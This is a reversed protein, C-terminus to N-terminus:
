ELRLATGKTEKLTFATGLGIAAVLFLYWSPAFNNGSIEILWICILPATGGAIAAGLNFGLAMGSYRVRAPFLEALTALSLAMACSQPLGLVALAVMGVAVNGSNILAFAPYILIVMALSTGIWMPKRGVKDSLAAFFPIACVSVALTITTSWFTETSSLGASTRLYTAMYIYIVYYAGQLLVSLGFAQLLARWQNAVVEVIPARAVKGDSKMEKFQPTEELRLRIWLGILGLPLAFLFPLRWGWANMFDNGLTATLIAVISSALLAGGLGGIQGSSTLLGRRANPSNEALYAGAGSTEGGASLGQVLRCLVLLMPALIGVAEYTPLLGIATTALAMTIITIALVPLRGIRDGLHGFLIGGIPRIIFTLAFTVFTLLLATVPDTADFFKTAIFVAVFGYIGYDYFEILTGVAGAVVISRKIRPQPDASQTTTEM